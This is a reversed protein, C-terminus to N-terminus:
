VGTGGGGTGTIINYGGAPYQTLAPDTAIDTLKVNGRKFTALSTRAMDIVDSVITEDGIGNPSLLRRALNYELVEECGPPLFYYTTLTEFSTLQVLRYLVLQNVDTNPVPWLNISGFNDEYTPQYYVATFQSSRLGKVRIQQWGDDTIVARPVEVAQNEDEANPLLIGAGQLSAPRTVNFDGGIGITYPDDPGGREEELDFVDRAPVPITLPQLSLGGMMMNLRRLGDQAKAASMTEGSTYVGIDCYANFILTQANTEPM